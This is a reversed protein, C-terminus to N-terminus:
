SFHEVHVVVTPAAVADREGDIAKVAARLAKETCPHTMVLIPVAKGELQDKQVVQAISVGQTGLAGAIRALVGPRDIATFRLYFASRFSDADALHPRKDKAAFPLPVRGVGGSVLDRGVELLDGIVASVERGVVLFRLAACAATQVDNGRGITFVFSHGCLGSPDDTRLEVYAASYDPDPNMADSGDLQLSTPFRIDYTELATIVPM